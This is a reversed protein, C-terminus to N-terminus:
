QSGGGLTRGSPLDSARLPGAHWDALNGPIRNLATDLGEWRRAATIRVAVGFMCFTLIGPLVSM